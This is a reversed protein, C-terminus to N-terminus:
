DRSITRPTVNIAKAIIAVTITDDDCIMAKIKRQREKLSSKIPVNKSRIYVTIHLKDSYPAHDKLETIEAELMEQWGMDLMAAIATNQNRPIYGLIYDFDFDEPDDDYDAALAVAVANKDYKNKPERVLALKAGVYLEDWIEKIDHFGIGAVPCELIVKREYEPAPDIPLVTVQGELPLVPEPMGETVSIDNPLAPEGGLPLQEDEDQRLTNIYNEVMDSLRKDQAIDSIGHEELQRQLDALEADCKPCTGPCDGKHSCETTAYELGYKEAVYTRIAKLIECKEKGRDMDNM